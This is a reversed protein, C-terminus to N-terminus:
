PGALFGALLVVVPLVPLYRLVQRGRHNAAM